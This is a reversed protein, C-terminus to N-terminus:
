QIFTGSHEHSPPLKKWAPNGCRCEEPRVEAPEECPHDRLVAFVRSPMGPWRVDPVALLRKRAASPRTPRPAQAGAALRTATSRGLTQHKNKHKPRGVRLSAWMPWLRSPRASVHGARWFTVDLRWTNTSREKPIRWPWQRQWINGSNCGFIWTAPARSPMQAQLEAFFRRTKETALKRSTAGKGLPLSSTM